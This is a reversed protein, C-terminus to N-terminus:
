PACAVRFGAICDTHDPTLRGRSASRGTIPVYSTDNVDYWSGGRRVRYSSTPLEWASGDTPAGMYSSNYWDQCMEWVNGSMDCLGFANPLKQGVVHAYYETTDRNFYWAYNEIVTYSPDDGWYFRTTTGARCAYEWEAESPLRFTKGTYNNLATLFAQANNWSVYVAPSDLDALVFTQGTWPATGMVAKWQRKTLEYKAMWYGGLTVSHQPDETIYGDPEGAYRGMLFTGGPTWMMTLPLDGPLLVTYTTGVVPTAVVKIYDNSAVSYNGAGDLYQVRVTHYGLGSPLTHGCTAAPAM